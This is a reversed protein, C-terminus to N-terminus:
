PTAGHGFDDEQTKSNTFADFESVVRGKFEEHYSSVGSDIIFCHVGKGTVASRDLAVDYTV